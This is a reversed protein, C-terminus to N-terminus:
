RREGTLPVPQVSKCSLWKFVVGSHLWAGDMIRWYCSTSVTDETVSLKELTLWRGCSVEDMAKVEKVEFCM